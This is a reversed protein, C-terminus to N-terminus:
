RRRSGLALRPDLNTERRVFQCPVGADACGDVVFDLRERPAHPITVLVRDPRTGVLVREIEAVSGLVPVGQLRRRRLRPDDDVFAVVQEGPTDRLELLLSRGARGAGVIVNRRRERPRSLAGLVPVLAREAFRSAGILASCLLVDIVFVSRSFESFDHVYSLALFGVAM